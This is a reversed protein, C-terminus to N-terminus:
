QLEKCTKYDYTPKGGIHFYTKDGRSTNNVIMVMILFLILYLYLLVLYIKDM